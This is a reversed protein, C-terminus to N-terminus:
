RAHALRLLEKDIPLQPENRPNAAGPMDGLGCAVDDLGRCDAYTSLTTRWRTKTRTQDRGPLMRLGSRREGRGRERGRERNRECESDRRVAIVASSFTTAASETVCRPRCTFLLLTLVIFISFTKTQWRQRYVLANIDTLLFIFYFKWVRNKRDICKEENDVTKEAPWLSHWPSMITIVKRAFHIRIFRNVVYIRLYSQKKHSMGFLMLSGM